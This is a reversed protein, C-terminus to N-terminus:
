LDFKQALYSRELRNNKSKYIVEETVIGLIKDM